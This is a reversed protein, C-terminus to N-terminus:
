SRMGDSDSKVVRTAGVISNAAIRVGPFVVAGAGVFVNDELVADGLIIAGPSVVCNDGLSAGHEVVANTNVVCNEGISSRPGLVGARFVCSGAGIGASVSISAYPSILIMPLGGQGKLSRFVEERRGILKYDAFGIVFSQGNLLSHLKSPEQGLLESLHSFSNKGFEPTLYGHVKHGTEQALDTLSVAHGGGGALVLNM